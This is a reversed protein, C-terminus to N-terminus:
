LHSRSKAKIICLGARTMRLPAIIECRAAFHQSTSGSGLSPARLAPDVPAICGGEYIRLVSAANQSEFILLKNCIKSLEVRFCGCPTNEQEPHCSPSKAKVALKDAGHDDRKNQKRALPLASVGELENCISQKTIHLRRARYLLSRRM